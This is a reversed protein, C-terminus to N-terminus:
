AKRRAVKCPYHEVPHAAGEEIQYAREGRYTKLGNRPHLRDWEAYAPEFSFERALLALVVRLETM